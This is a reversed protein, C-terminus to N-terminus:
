LCDFYFLILIFYSSFFSYLRWSVGGIAGTGDTYPYRSIGVLNCESGEAREWTPLTIVSQDDVAAAIQSPEQPPMVHFQFGVELYTSVTSYKGVM